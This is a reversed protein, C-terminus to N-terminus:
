CVPEPGLGLPPSCVRQKAEERVSVDPAALLRFLYSGVNYREGQVVASWGLNQGWLNRQGEQPYGLM